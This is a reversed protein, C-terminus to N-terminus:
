VIDCAAKVMDLDIGEPPVQREFPAAHELACARQDSSLDSWNVGPMLSLAFLIDQHEATLCARTVEGALPDSRVAGGASIASVITAVRADMASRYDAWTAPYPIELAESFHQDMCELEDDSVDVGTLGRLEESLGTRLTLGVADSREADSSSGGDCGVGLTAIGAVLVAAIGPPMRRMWERSM